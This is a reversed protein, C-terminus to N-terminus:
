ITEEYWANIHFTAGTKTDKVTAIDGDVSIVEVISGDELYRGKEFHGM